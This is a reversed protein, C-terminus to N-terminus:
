IQTIEGAIPTLLHERVATVDGEYTGLLHMLKVITAEITMDYAGIAGVAAIQEHSAGALQALENAAVVAPAKAEIASKFGHGTKLPSGVKWAIAVM